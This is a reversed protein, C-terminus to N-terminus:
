RELEIRWLLRFLRAGFSRTTHELIENRSRTVRLEFFIRRTADLM